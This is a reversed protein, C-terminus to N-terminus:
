LFQKRQIFFKFIDQNVKWSNETGHQIDILKFYNPLYKEVLGHSVQLVTTRDQQESYSGSNSVNDVHYIEGTGFMRINTGKKIRKDGKLTITGKRSFPLYAHTEILWDLDERSQKRILTINSESLDSVSQDFDLYNSQVHLVKSGFIEVYEPFMVAPLNIMEAGDGQEIFSGM